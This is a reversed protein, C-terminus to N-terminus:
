CKRKPLYQFSLWVARRERKLLEEMAERGEGDSSEFPLRLQHDDQNQSSPNHTFDRNETAKKM